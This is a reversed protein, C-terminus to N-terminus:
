PKGEKEQLVAHERKHSRLMGRWCLMSAIHSHFAIMCCDSIASVGQHILPLRDPM